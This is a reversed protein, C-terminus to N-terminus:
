LAPAHGLSLPMCARRARAGRAQSRPRAAAEARRGTAARRWSRQQAARARQRSSCACVLTVPTVAWRPFPCTSPARLALKSAEPIPLLAPPPVGGASARGAAGLRVVRRGRRVPVAPLVHLRRVGPQRRGPAGWRRTERCGGGATLVAPEPSGPVGPLRGGGEV